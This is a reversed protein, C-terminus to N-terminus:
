EDDEGIGVLDAMLAALVACAALVVLHWPPIGLGVRPLVWVALLYIFATSFLVWLTRLRM